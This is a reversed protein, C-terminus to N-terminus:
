EKELTIKDTKICLTEGDSTHIYAVDPWELGVIIGLGEFSIFNTKKFKGIPTKCSVLQGIKFCYEQIPNQM